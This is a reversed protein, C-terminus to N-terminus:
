KRTHAYLEGDSLIGDVHLIDYLVSRGFPRAHKCAVLNHADVVLWKYALLHGVLLGHVPKLSGLVRLHLNAHYPITM